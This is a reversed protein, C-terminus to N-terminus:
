SNNRPKPKSKHNILLYVSAIVVAVALIAISLGVTGVQEPMATIGSGLDTAKPTPQVPLPQMSPLVVGPFELPKSLPHNDQNNGDIRYPEGSTHDSWYNGEKGNDWINAAGDVLQPPNNGQYGHKADPYFWVQKITAQSDGKNNGVFNNHYILNDRHSGELDFDPWRSKLYDFQLGQCEQLCIVDPRQGMIIEACM